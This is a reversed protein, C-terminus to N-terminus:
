RVRRAQAAARCTRCFRSGRWQYTNEPTFEHGHRCHTREALRAPITEGRLLNTRRTVPELHAPRVCRRNRCLHDLELGDPVPGRKMEYAIRHAPRIVGGWNM